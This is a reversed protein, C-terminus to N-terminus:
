PFRRWKDTTCHANNKISNKISETVGEFGEFNKVTQGFVEGVIM